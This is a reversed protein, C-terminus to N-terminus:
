TVITLKCYYCAALDQVRLAADRQACLVRALLQAGGAGPGGCSCDHIEQPDPPM